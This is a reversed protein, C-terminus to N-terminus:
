VIGSDVITVVNSGNTTSFDVTPNTVLTRPTIDSDTGNFIVELSQQCGAALRKDSNIGEWAHLARVPSGLSTPYFKQWGGLKEPVVGTTPSAFRWRVLQTSIVQAVGQTPTIESSVGPAFKVTQLPM